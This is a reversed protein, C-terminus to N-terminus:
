KNLIIKGQSDRYFKPGGGTAGGAPPAGEDLYSTREAGLGKSLTRYVEDRARKKRDVARKSDGPVPFFNKWDKEYETAPAQAGTAFRLRAEIWRGAADKYELGKESALYTPSVRQWYEFVSTPDYANDEGLVEDVDRQASKMLNRYAALKIQIENFEIPKGTSIEIYKKGIPDFMFGPVAMKVGGIEVEAQKLVGPAYEPMLEDLKKKTDPTWNGGAVLADRIEGRLEPVSKERGPVFREVEETDIVREGGGYLPEVTDTFIARDEPTMQSLKESTVEEGPGVIPQGSKDRIVRGAERKNRLGSLESKLKRIQKEYRKGTQASYPTSTLTAYEAEYKRLEMKKKAEAERDSETLPKVGRRLGWVEESLALSPPTGPQGKYRLGWRKHTDAIAQRAEAISRVDGGSIGEIIGAPLSEYTEKIALQTEEPFQDGKLGLSQQILSISADRKKRDAESLLKIGEPVRTEFDGQRGLVEIADFEDPSLPEGRAQKKLLENIGVPDLTTEFEETVTEGPIMREKYAAQQATSFAEDGAVKKRLADLKMQNLERVVEGHKHEEWQMMSKVIAEKQASGMKGARYKEAVEGGLIGALADGPQTAETVNGWDERPTPIRMEMRPDVDSEFLLSSFDRDIVPNAIESPSPAASEIQKAPFEGSEQARRELAKILVDYGESREEEKARAVLVDGIGKGADTLSKRMAAAQRGAEALYGPPLSMPTAKGTLFPSINGQGGGGITFTAM